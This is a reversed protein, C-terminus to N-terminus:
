VGSPRDVPYRGLAGGLCRGKRRAAQFQQDLIEVMPSVCRIADSGAAKSEGSSHLPLVAIGQDARLATVDERWRPWLLGAYFDPLDGSACWALWESYSIRMRTWDLSRPDFYIMEGAVGPRGASPRLGNVFFAGGLVDHAVILGETPTWTQDARAPSCNVQAISPLGVERAPSGGFIRLWGDYLLIGSCNLTIAGLASSTAVQLQLLSARAKEADVALIRPAAFSRSLLDTLAQWTPQDEDLLDDLDLM